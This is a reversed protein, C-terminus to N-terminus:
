HHHPSPLLLTHRVIMALLWFAWRWDLEQSLFGGIVPGIVPGLLPGMAFVAMAAGRKEQPMVDAVTGGGITLPASGACGTIFRFVIFMPMNKALACGIAFGLFIANCIHYIWLRGYLESLPAVVLPGVVFGLLYITVSLQAVVTNTEKFEALMQDAGPAFMTSGLNVILTILSVIVVHGVRIGTSWNRPNAPDDPGDWDVFHSDHTDPEFETDASSLRRGEKETDATSLRRETYARSLRWENETNDASSLYWAIVAEAFLRPDEENWPQRMGRRQIPRGEKEYNSM